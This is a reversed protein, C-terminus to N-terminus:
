RVVAPEVKFRVTAGDAVRYSSEAASGSPNFSVGDADVTAGIHLQHIPADLYDSWDTLAPSHFTIVAVGLHGGVRALLQLRRLLDGTLLFGSMVMFL